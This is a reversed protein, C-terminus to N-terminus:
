IWQGIEKQKIKADLIDSMVKNHDAITFHKGEIDKIKFVYDKKKVLGSVYFIKLNEVAGIKMNCVAATALGGINPIESVVEGIKTNPIATTVLDTVNSIKWNKEGLKQKDTKCQNIQILSSADCTKKGLSDVKINLKNYM